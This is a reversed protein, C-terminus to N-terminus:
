DLYDRFIINSMAKKRIAESSIWRQYHKIHTSLDHGMAMAAEGDSVSLWRKDTAVTIAWTHRLDYPKIDRPKDEMNIVGKADPIRCKFKPLKTRLQETIWNGLYSNNDCVGRDNPDEGTWTKTKDFASVINMKAKKRLLDQNMRFDEKLKYKKIWEPFIPFTWHEFKSKTRWEGAVYVWGFETSSKEDESTIEEIHHLEHNRLGYNMMMVLCWTQLPYHNKIKDFYKEAEKRTPIGRIDGIDSNTLYRTKKGKSQNHLTRQELLNERKLWDPEKGDQEKIAQRIQELGDLNNLFGRQDIMHYKKLWKIIAQWDFSPKDASVKNITARVNKASSGKMTQEIYKLTIKKIEDWTQTVNQTIQLPENNKVKEILKKLDLDSPLESDGIYNLLKYACQCDEYIMHQLPNLSFRKNKNAKLYIFIYPRTPYKYFGYKSSIEESNIKIRDFYSLKM